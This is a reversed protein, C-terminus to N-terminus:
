RKKEKKGLTTPCKHFVGPTNAQSLLAVIQDDFYFAFIIPMFFIFDLFGFVPAQKDLIRAFPYNKIPANQSKPVSNPKFFLSV